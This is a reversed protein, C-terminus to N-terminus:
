EVTPFLVKKDKLVFKIVQIEYCVTTIALEGLGQNEREEKKWVDGNISKAPSYEVHGHSYPWYNSM